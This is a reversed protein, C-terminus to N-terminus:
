ETQVVTTRPSKRLYPGRQEQDGRGTPSPYPSPAEHDGSSIERVGARERLSLPTTRTSQKTQELCQGSRSQCLRFLWLRLGKLGM